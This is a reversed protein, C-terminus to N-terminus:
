KERTETKQPITLSPYAKQITKIMLPGLLLVFPIETAFTWVFIIPIFASPIAAKFYGTSSFFLQSYGWVVLAIITSGIGLGIVSGVGYNRWEPWLRAVALMVILSAVVTVVFVSVIQLTSLQFLFYAESETPLLITPLLIGFAITISGM